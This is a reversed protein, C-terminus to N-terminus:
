LSSSEIVAAISLFHHHKAQNPVILWSIKAAVKSSSSVRNRSSSNQDQDQDQDQDQGEERSLSMVTVGASRLARKLGSQSYMSYM